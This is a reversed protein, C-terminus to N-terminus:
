KLGLAQTFNQKLRKKQGVILWLIFTPVLLIMALSVVLIATNQLQTWRILGILGVLIPLIVPLWANYAMIQIVIATTSGNPILEGRLSILPMPGGPRRIIAIEHVPHAEFAYEGTFKGEVRKSRVFFEEMVQKLVPAPLESDYRHIETGLQKFLSM